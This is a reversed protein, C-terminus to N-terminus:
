LTVLLAKFADRCSVMNDLAAVRTDNLALIGCFFLGDCKTLSFHIIFNFYVFSVNLSLSLLM